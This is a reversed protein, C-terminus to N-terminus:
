PFQLGGPTQTAQCQCSIVTHGGGKLDSSLNWFKTRLNISVQFVQLSKPLGVNSDRSGEMSNFHRERHVARCHLPFPQQCTM